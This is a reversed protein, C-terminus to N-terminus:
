RIFNTMEERTVKPLAISDKSKDICKLLWALNKALNRMTQLGEADKLVEGKEMGYGMNWYTSGVTIMQTITFFLNLAGFTQVAGARRVAVVSAGLKRQLMDGNALAVMTARDIFAKIQASLGACYVPSGLIIGDAASMIELWENLQDNKLVCQKNKNEWCQMCGICGQLQKAGVHIKQTQIGLEELETFLTDILISTNGDKRPSGNFAVIKM